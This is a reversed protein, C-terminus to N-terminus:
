DVGFTWATVDGNSAITSKDVFAYEGPPLCGPPLQIKVTSNGLVTFTFNIISNNDDDESAFSFSRGNKGIALKYLVINAAHVSLFSIDNVIATFCEDCSRIRLTSKPGAILYLGATLNGGQSQYVAITKELASKIGGTTDCSNFKVANVPNPPQPKVKSNTLHWSYITETMAGNAFPGDKLILNGSLVNRNNGLPQDTIFISGDQVFEYERGAATITLGNCDPISASISYTKTELDIGVDLESKGQGNCEGKDGPTTESKKKNSATGTNDTITADMRWESIVIEPGTRKEYFSVTGSWKEEDITNTKKNQKISSSLFFPAIFLPLILKCNKM